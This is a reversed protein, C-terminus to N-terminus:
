FQMYIIRDDWHACLISHENIFDLVIELRERKDMEDDVPISYADILEDVTSEAYDCCIACVDLEMEEGIDKELDELYGFLYSLGMYSFNHRYTVSNHFADRFTSTNVSQKM